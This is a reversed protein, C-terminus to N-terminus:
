QPPAALPPSKTMPAPRPQWPNPLIYLHIPCPSRPFDDIIEPQHDISLSKPASATFPETSTSNTGFNSCKLTKCLLSLPSCCGEEDDEAEDESDGFERRTLYRRKIIVIINLGVPVLTRVLCVYLMYDLKFYKCTDCRFSEISSSTMVSITENMANSSKTENCSTQMLHVFIVLSFSWCHDTQVIVFRRIM